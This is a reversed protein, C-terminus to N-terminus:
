APRLAYCGRRASSGAIWAVSCVSLVALVPPFPLLPPLGPWLWAIGLLARRVTGAGPVLLAISVALMPMDYTHVWPAALLILPLTVATRRKTDFAPDRWVLWVAYACGCSVVTQVLYATNLTAGVSRSAMFVSSFILQAPDSQWPAGIYASVTNQNGSFFDLWPTYGFACAASLALTISCICGTLATRWRFSAVLCIPLLMAFQPKIAVAGLLLGSLLPWRDIALLGGCLLAAILTGNQGALANAAVAPSLLIAARGVPSLGGLSVAFWLAILSMCSYVAFGASLSCEALVRAMLLIPPPYPWIQSPIGPGFKMRLNATFAAPDSLVTLSHEAAARGAAWLATFDRAALATRDATLGDIPAFWLLWGVWLPAILGLVVVLLSRRDLGSLKM